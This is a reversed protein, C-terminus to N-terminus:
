LLLQNPSHEITYSSVFSFFDAMGVDAIMCRVDYMGCRLDSM